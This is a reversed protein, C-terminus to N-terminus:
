PMLSAMGTLATIYTVASLLVIAAAELKYLTNRGKRGVALMNKVSLLDLRVTEIKQYRDEPRSEMCRSIIRDMGSLATNKKSSLKNDEPGPVKGYLLRYVTAGLNYIDTRGDTLGGRILQEPAAYSSTGAICTDRRQSSYEKSIGFDVLVLRNGRTLMINSPKLDRYIIPRPKFGHLYELIDCLELSWDVVTDIGFSGQRRLMSELDTGEMNSEVIYLGGDDRFVDVIRPLSVHYLKKLIEVESMRKLGSEAAPIHKIAWKNGLQLNTCLYVYGNGGKGLLKEVRYKGNVIDGTKM